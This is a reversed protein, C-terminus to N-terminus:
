EYYTANFSWGLRKMTQRMGSLTWGNMKKWLARTKKDGEEWKLLCRKAYEEIEPHKEVLTSYLVYYDGVFHDGKKKVDKPTTAASVKNNKAWEYGVMSKCIHIGRDNVLLTRVVETGRHEEIRALADGLAGNRAHGIHLPKNTNPSIYEIVVKSPVRLRNKDDRRLGPDLSLLEEAIVKPNLFFNVYPGAAGVREVVRFSTPGGGMKSADSETKVGLRTIEPSGVEHMIKEAVERAIEVPSKKLKKALTFCPFAVDGMEPTPPTELPINLQSFERASLGLARAVLIGIEKEGRTIHSPM